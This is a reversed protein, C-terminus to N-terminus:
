QPHGLGKVATFNSHCCQQLLTVTLLSLAHLVLRGAAAADANAHEGDHPLTLSVWAVNLSVM